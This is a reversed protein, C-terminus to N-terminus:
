LVLNKDVNKLIYNIVSAATRVTSNKLSQFSKSQTSSIANNKPNCRKTNEETLAFGTSLKPGDRMHM